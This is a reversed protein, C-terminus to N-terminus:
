ISKICPSVPDLALVENLSDKLDNYTYVSIEELRFEQKIYPYKEKDVKSCFMSLPRAYVKRDGYLAQYVVMLEKTETHMVGIHLIQYLYDMSHKDEITERKFHRVIMGEKFGRQEPTFVEEEKLKHHSTYIYEEVSETDDIEIISIIDFYYYYKSDMFEEIKMPMILKVSTEDDFNPYIMITEDTYIVKSFIELEKITEYRPSVFITTGKQFPGFDQIMICKYFKIM